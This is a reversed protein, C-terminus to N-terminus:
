CFTASTGLGGLQCMARLVSAYVQYCAAKPPRDDVSCFLAHTERDYTGTIISETKIKPGCFNEGKKGAGVLLVTESHTWAWLYYSTDGCNITEWLCLARPTCM